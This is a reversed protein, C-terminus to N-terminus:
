GALRPRSGGFRARVPGASSLGAQRASCLEAIAQLALVSRAGSLGAKGCGAQQVAGLRALCCQLAATESPNRRLTATHFNWWLNQGM